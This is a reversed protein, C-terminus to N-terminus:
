QVAKGPPTVPTMVTGPAPSGFSVGPTSPPGVAAQSPTPATGQVTGSNTPDTGSAAQTASGAYSTTAVRVESCWVDVVLLGRGTGSERRYDYHHISVSPYVEELTVIDYINTDGAIAAISDLLAQRAALSGGAAFRFRADFPTAVKDYSEFSGEEIPYDAVVWEQRYEFSAIIETQIIPSGDLFIGWQPGLNASFFGGFSDATALVGGILGSGPAFAVPPVGAVNPANVFFPM